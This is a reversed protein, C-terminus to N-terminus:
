DYTACAPLDQNGKDKTNRINQSVCLQTIGAWHLWWLLVNMHMSSDKSEILAWSEQM